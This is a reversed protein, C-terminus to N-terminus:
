RKSVSHRDKPVNTQTEPKKVSRSSATNLDDNNSNNHAESM